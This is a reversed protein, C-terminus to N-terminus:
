TTQEWWQPAAQRLVPILLWCSMAAAVSVAVALSFGADAGDPNM